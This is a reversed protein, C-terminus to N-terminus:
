LKKPVGSGARSKRSSHRERPGPTWVNEPEHRFLIQSMPHRLRSRTREPPNRDPGRDECHLTEPAKAVHLRNEVDFPSCPTEVFLRVAHGSVGHLALTAKQADVWNQIRQTILREVNETVALPPVVRYTPGGRSGGDHPYPHVSDPLGDSESGDEPRRSAVAAQSGLDPPELEGKEQGGEGGPRIIVAETRNRCRHENVDQITIRAKVPVEGRCTFLQKACM